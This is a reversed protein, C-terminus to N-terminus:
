NDPTTARSKKTLNCTRCALICNSKIHGINNNVREITCMTSNYEVFQMEVRCDPYECRVIDTGVDTQDEILGEIFCYDIHNNADYRDYKKDSKRSCRIMTSLTVKMPDTCQKCDSKVRRHICVWSGTGCQTCSYKNKKHPVCLSSGDCTACAQKQKNHVCKKRDRQTKAHTQCQTCLKCYVGTRKKKYQDIPLNQKCKNCYQMHTETDSM